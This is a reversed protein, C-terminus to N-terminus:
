LNGDMPKNISGLTSGVLHIVPTGDKGCKCDEGTERKVRELVAGRGRDFAQVATEGLKIEIGYDFGHCYGKNGGLGGQPAHFEIWAFHPITNQKKRVSATM